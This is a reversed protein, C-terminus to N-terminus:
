ELEETIQVRCWEQRVAWLEHEDALCRLCGCKRCRAGQVGIRWGRRTARGYEEEEVGGRDKREM